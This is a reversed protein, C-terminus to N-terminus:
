ANSVIKFWQISLEGPFNSESSSLWAEFVKVAVASVVAAAGSADVIAEQQQNGASVSRVEDDQAARRKKNTKTRPRQPMDRGAQFMSFDV